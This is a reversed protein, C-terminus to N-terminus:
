NDEIKILPGKCTACVFKKTNIRRKRVIRKQCQQCHYNHYIQDSEDVLSRVYRSGGTKQLLEKFERDRHHYGRAALHLHYHCLEHKIVGILEKDGYKEFVKPNFDIHHSQLHYRGGVTKLRSNFFARHQFEKDFFTLSLEEVLKQLEQDNMFQQISQKDNLFYYLNVIGKM